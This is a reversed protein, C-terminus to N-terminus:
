IRGYFQPPGGNEDKTFYYWCANDKGTHPSDKIWKVRGISVIKRCRKLFPISQKTHAWDGDFLLWTPAMNSLHIILPHLVNRSWPPNTIFMNPRFPHHLLADKEIIDQHKPSIDYALTCFHGHSELINILSGDGACPEVFITMAELHPLLPTVAEPPTVYYDKEIRQFDSSRKGM